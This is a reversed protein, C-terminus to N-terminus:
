STAELLRRAIQRSEGDPAPLHDFDGRLAKLAYREEDIETRTRFGLRRFIPAPPCWGQLAHQVMFCAAMATFLHWRRDVLEGLGMGLLSVLAFNTQLTREIDWEQDLEALRRDIEGPGAHAFRQVNEEGQRRLRENVKDPTSRQVRSATAPLM